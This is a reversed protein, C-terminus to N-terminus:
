RSRTTMRGSDADTPETGKEVGTTIFEYNVEADRVRYRIGCTLCLWDNWSREYTKGRSEIQMSQGCKGCQLASLNGLQITPAYKM